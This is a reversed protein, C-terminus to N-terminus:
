KDPKENKLEFVALIPNHDSGGKMIVKAECCHLKMSYLIHDVQQQLKMGQVKGSWTPTTKDFEPLANKYRKEQLWKIADGQRNENFDGLVLVPKEDSPYFHQIEEVHKEMTKKLSDLSYRGKESTVPKLHLHLIRMNGVPSNVEYLCAPFWKIKSKVYKLEKIKHKSFVALGAAKYKGDPHRFLYHPYDKKLEHKLLREWKKNTEQLFVIDAKSELIAKVSERSKPLAYNVNYSLITVHKGKPKEPKRLGSAEGSEGKGAYADRWNEIAKNKDLVSKLKDLEQQAEKRSFGKKYIHFKPKEPKAKNVASKWAKVAKEYEALVLKEFDKVEDDPMIEAAVHKEGFAIIVVSHKEDKEQAQLICLVLLVALATVVPLLKKYEIKIV